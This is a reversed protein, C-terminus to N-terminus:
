WNYQTGTTPGSRNRTRHQTEESPKMKVPRDWDCVLKDQIRWMAGTAPDVLLLGILGGFLINGWYWHNMRATLNLTRSERDEREFLVVYSRSRFYGGRAPLTVTTPTIAKHVEAGACDKITVNAGSPVSTITVPWSSTSVISACGSCLVAIACVFLRMDMEKVGSDSLQEAVM